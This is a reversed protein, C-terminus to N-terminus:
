FVRPNPLPYQTLCPDLRRSCCWTTWMVVNNALTHSTSFHHNQVRWRNLCHRPATCRPLCLPARLPRFPLLHRAFAFEIQIPVMHPYSRSPAPPRPVQWPPKTVRRGGTCPHADVFAILFSVRLGPLNIGRHSNSCPSESVTLYAGAHPGTTSASPDLSTRNM